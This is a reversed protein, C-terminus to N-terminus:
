DVSENWWAFPFSDEYSTAWSVITHEVEFVSKSAIINVGIILHRHDLLQADDGNRHSYV